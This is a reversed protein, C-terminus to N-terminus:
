LGCALGTEVLGGRGLSTSNFNFDVRGDSAVIVVVMAFWFETTSARPLVEIPDWTDHKEFFTVVSPLSLFCCVLERAVPVRLM